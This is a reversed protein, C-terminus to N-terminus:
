KGGKKTNELVKKYPMLMGETMKSGIKKQIKESSMMGGVLYMALLTGMKKQPFDYQGHAKYFKHDERMMGQMLFILDRFIKMGGVGYFNQPQVFAHEICYSLRAALADISEDTHKVDNAVGAFYNGGVEARAEIVMRLNSEREYDGSILYGIPMGMTVTRHGNCFQRDDYMKFREGMSHDRITFAYVLAAGGLIEKRLFTDFGDNYICKGSAACRMCGLCGGAIPYERINVVKTKQPMVKCFREIMSLLGTDEPAADTVLVVPRYTRNATRSSVEIKRMNELTAPTLPRKRWKTPFPEYLDEKMSWAVFKIFDRAEKRGKSTTLDEMDASLGKIFKMGMDQCNDQVYQHATVDYFHKSTTFVTAYKGTFNVGSTKILHIFRHLQSPAMFTYVPFAFILLEAKQMEELVPDMNQEMSRIKQGVHLVKLELKDYYIELYRMTQLTISNEGKPSGNLVLAKM